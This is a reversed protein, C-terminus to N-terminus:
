IRESEDCALTVITAGWGGAEAPADSFALVSARRELIARVKERQVGIGKGHIIRVWRVRRRVAEDLYDEVVAEIQRPPISHLDLVDSFEIVVPDPFPDGNFIENAEERVLNREGTRFIRDLARRLPRLVM